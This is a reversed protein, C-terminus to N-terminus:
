RRVRYFQMDGSVITDVQFTGTGINQVLANPDPAWLATVGLAATQDIAFDPM